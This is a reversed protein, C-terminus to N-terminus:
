WFLIPRQLQLKVPEADWDTKILAGGAQRQLWKHTRSTDPPRASSFPARQISASHPCLCPCPHYFPFPCPLRHCVCLINRSFTKGRNGQAKKRANKKGRLFLAALAALLFFLLFIQCRLPSTMCPTFVPIIFINLASIKTHLKFTLRSFNQFYSRKM